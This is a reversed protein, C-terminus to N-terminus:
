VGKDKRVTVKGDYVILLLWGYRVKMELNYEKVM